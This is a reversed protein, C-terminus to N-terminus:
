ERIKYLEINADQFNSFCLYNEDRSIDLGTPQNGGEFTHVTQWADVDIITIRGNEPSRKTYDSRNNPGRSSVFLWRNQFLVITNPNNFVSMTRAIAFSALDIEYVAAHYMDSVYAKTEDANVAIHRMASKEKAISALLANTETSFKQVAGGDFCLVIIANGNEVFALGRPAAKTKLTRVVTGSEYDILSVDNSVWNSVAVLQKEASWAMFKSWVGGTAIERRYAFDPVSYEYIRGTTMQSVFFASKEPIFLGEAFGKQSSRPPAIKQVPVYEDLSIIEFGADDLLPLVIRKSDPSFIVQKPQKGCPIVAVKELVPPMVKQAAQFADRESSDLHADSVLAGADQLSSDGTSLAAVHPQRTACSALFIAAAFFLLCCAINADGQKM